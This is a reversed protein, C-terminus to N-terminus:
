APVRIVGKEGITHLVFNESRQRPYGVQFHDAPSRHCLVLAPNRAVQTLDSLLKSHRMHQFSTNLSGAIAHPHIRLQYIRASIRM